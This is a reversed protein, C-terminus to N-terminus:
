GDPEEVRRPLRAHHSDVGVPDPSGGRALLGGPLHDRGTPDGGVSLPPITLEFPIGGYPDAEVSGLM